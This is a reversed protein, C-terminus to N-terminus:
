NDMKRLILDLRALANWAAHAAHLLQSDQDTLEGQAEKLMHRYLADTYRDIGMPVSVWGNDSYKGAGFTGVRSVEEIAKAFGNVVLGVRNKGADLKAGPTHPSIGSPDAEVM